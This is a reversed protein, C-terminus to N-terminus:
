LVVEIEWREEFRRRLTEDDLRALVELTEIADALLDERVCDAGAALERAVDFGDDEISAERLTAAVMGLAAKQRRLTNAITQLDRRAEAPSGLISGNKPRDKSRNKQRRSILRILVSRASRGQLM